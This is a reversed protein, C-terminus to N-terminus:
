ADHLARFVSGVHAALMAKAGPPLSSPDELELVGVCSTTRLLAVPDPDEFRSSHTSQEIISHIVQVVYQRVESSKPLVTFKRTCHDMLLPFSIEVLDNLHRVMQDLARYCLSQSANSGGYDCLRTLFVITLSCLDETWHKKNLFDSSLRLCHDRECLIGLHLLSNSSAPSLFPILLAVFGVLDWSIDGHLVFSTNVLSILLQETEPRTETKVMGQMLLSSISFSLHQSFSIQLIEELPSLHASVELFEELSSGGSVGGGSPPSLTQSRRVPQRGRPTAPVAARNLGTSKLLELLSNLLSVVLPTCAPGALPLLALCGVFLPRAQSALLFPSMRSLCVLSGCALQVDVPRRTFPRQCHLAVALVTENSFPPKLLLGALCLGRSQTVSNTSEFAMVESCRTLEQLWRSAVSSHITSYTKVLELFVQGLAEVSRMSVENDKNEPHCEETIPPLVLARDLLSDLDRSNRFFLLQLRPDRQVQTLISRWSSQEVQNSNLVLGHVVNVFLSLLTQRTFLSGRGVALLILQMTRSFNAEVDFSSHLSTALLLRLCVRIPNWAVRNSHIPSQFVDTESLFATVAEDLILQSVISGNDRSVALTCLIEGAADIKDVHQQSYVFVAQFVEELLFNPCNALPKWLKELLAGLIEEGCCTADVLMHLVERLHPLQESFTGAEKWQICLPALCEMWPMLYELCFYHYRLSVNQFGRIAECVFDFVMNPHHQAISRSVSVALVASNSPVTIGSVDLMREDCTFEFHSLIALLLKYAAYRTDPYMGGLNLLAMNLLPGPVEDPRTAVKKRDKPIAGPGHSSAQAVRVLSQRMAQIIEEAHESSFVASALGGSNSDSYKIVLVREKKSMPSVDTICKMSISDMRTVQQGLISDHLTLVCLYDRSLRLIAEKSLLGLVRDVPAFTSLIHQELALTDDPLGIVSEDVFQFYDELSSGFFIQKLERRDFVRTLHKSFQKFFRNPYM